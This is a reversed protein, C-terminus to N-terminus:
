IVGATRPVFVKLARPVVSIVAPTSVVSEGDIDVSQPPDADLEVSSTTFHHRGPLAPKRLMLFCFLLWILQFIGMKEITHVILKGDTFSADPSLLTDGYYRGNAIIVQHVNSVFQEEPSRVHCEFSRHWFSTRLGELMYALEGLWRKLRYPASRVAEATIGVSVANVFYDDGIKGLDIERVSGELLVNVAGEVTLPIQLSRATTNGTGLPIIGLAIDKFALEDVVASLTGDGGGVIVLHCGHRMAERTVESLRGPDRVPYSAVVRIGRQQLAQLIHQFHREGLRSYANVIVVATLEHQITQTLTDNDM